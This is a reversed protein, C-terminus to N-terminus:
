SRITAAVGAWYWALDDDYWYSGYRLPQAVSESTQAAIASGWVDYAYRDVVNGNVDTLAM